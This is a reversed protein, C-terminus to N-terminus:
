GRSRVQSVPFYPGGAFCQTACCFTIIYLRNWPSYLIGEMLPVTIIVSRELESCARVGENGLCHPFLGGMFGTDRERSRGLWSGFM